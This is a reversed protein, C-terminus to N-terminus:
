NSTLWSRFEKRRAETKVILDKKYKDKQTTEVPEKTSLNVSPAPLQPTTLKTKAELVPKVTKTSSKLIPKTISARRKLETAVQNRAWSTYKDIKTASANTSQVVLNLLAQKTYTVYGLIAPDCVEICNTVCYEKAFYSEPVYVEKDRRAIVYQKYIEETINFLQKQPIPDKLVSRRYTEDTYLISIGNSLYEHPYESADRSYRSYAYQDGRWVTFVKGIVTNPNNEQTTYIREVKLLEKVEQELVKGNRSIITQGELIGSAILRMNHERTADTWKMSESSTRMKEVFSSGLTKEIYTDILNLKYSEEQYVELLKTATDNILNIYEAVSSYGHNSNYNTM